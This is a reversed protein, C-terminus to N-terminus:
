FLFANHSSTRFDEIIGEHHTSVDLKYLIRTGVKFDHQTINREAVNHSEKVLDTKLSTTTTTVPRAIAWQRLCPGSKPCPIGAVVMLIMRKSREIATLTKLWRKWSDRYREPSSQPQPLDLQDQDRAQSDTVTVFMVM